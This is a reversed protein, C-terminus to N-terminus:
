HAHARRGRLYPVVFVLAVPVHLLVGLLLILAVEGGSLLGNAVETWLAWITFPLFLVISTVLGPNYVRFRLSAVVHTIANVLTLGIWALGVWRLPGSFLVALVVPLWVMGVNVFAVGGMSVPWDDNGSRFIHANTFQRFGGPWLHEEVQHVMYLILLAAFMAQEAAPADRFFVLWLVAGIVALVPALRQWNASLTTLM